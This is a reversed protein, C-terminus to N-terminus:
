ESDEVLDFHKQLHAILAVADELDIYTEFDGEDGDLELVVRM